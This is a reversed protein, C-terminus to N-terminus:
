VTQVHLTRGHQALVASILTPACLLAILAGAATPHRRAVPAAWWAIALTAILAVPFLYRYYFWYAIFSLGYYAALAALAAALAGSRRRRDRAGARWCSGPACWPSSCPPM